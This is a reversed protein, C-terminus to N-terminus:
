WLHVRDAPERWMGDGPRTHVAQHFADVNVATGNARFRGPAHPDRGLTYDIRAPWAKRRFPRAWGIFLRQEGALGDVVPAAHGHLSAEYAECALQLGGLDAVNAELTLRGNVHRGGPRGEYADFQPVLPAVLRDFAQQESAPLWSRPRGQADYQTGVDVVALVLLSGIASGFSGENEADDAAPDFMPPQILAAPVVISNSEPNYFANPVHAHMGWWRRDLPQGVRKMDQRLELAAARDINGLADDPSIQLATFDRTAASEGLQVQLRDLKARAIARSAPSMWSMRDVDALAAAKVSEAIHRARALADASLHREIYLRGVADGMANDLASMAALWRPRQVRYGGLVRYHFDFHADRFAKPLVPSVGDLRQVEMWAQWTAAPQSSVLAALGQAFHPDVLLDRAEPHGVAAVLARWDLGPAQASLTDLTIPTEPFTGPPPQIRALAIEVEIVRQADAAADADGALELLKQAHDRYAMRRQSSRADDALYTAADQLALQGPGVHIRQLGDAASGRQADIYIPMSAVRMLAVFQQVIEAPTRARAIADLSPAVGALGRRDITDVDTYAHHFDALKRREGTLPRISAALGELDARNGDEIRLRLESFASVDPFDPRLPTAAEWAGNVHGYLDDQIRPPTPAAVQDASASASASAPPVALALALALVTRGGLEVLSRVSPRSVASPLRPSTM